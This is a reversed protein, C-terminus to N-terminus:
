WERPPTTYNLALRGNLFEIDGLDVIIEHGKAVRVFERKLV